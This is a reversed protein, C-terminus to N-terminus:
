LDVHLCSSVQHVGSGVSAADSYEFILKDPRSGHKKLVAVAEDGANARTLMVKFTSIICPLHYLYIPYTPVKCSRLQGMRFRQPDNVLEHEQVFHVARSVGFAQPLM